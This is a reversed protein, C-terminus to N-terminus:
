NKIYENNGITKKQLFNINFNLYDFQILQFKM